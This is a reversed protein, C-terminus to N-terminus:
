PTFMLFQAGCTNSELNPPNEKTHAFGQMAESNSKLFISLYVKTTLPRRNLDEIVLFSNKKLKTGVLKGTEQSRVTASFLNHWEELQLMSTFNKLRSGFQYQMIWM